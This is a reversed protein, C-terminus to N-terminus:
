IGDEWDFDWWYAIYLCYQDFDRKITEKQDPFYKMLDKIGDDDYAMFFRNTRGLMKRSERKYSYKLRKRQNNSMKSSM